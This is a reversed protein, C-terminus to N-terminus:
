RVEGDFTVSGAGAVSTWTLSLRWVGAMPFSAEVHYVGPSQGPEIKADSSMAMGPMSMAGAWRVDAVTVLAGTAISRFELTAASSGQHLGAGDSFLSVEVSGSQVRYLPTRPPSGSGGGRGIAWWGALIIALVAVAALVHRASLPPQIRLAEREVAVPQDGAESPLGREHLWLFMVPTVILVHLLSSVMGGLVPTALPKM